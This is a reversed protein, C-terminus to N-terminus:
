DEKLIVDDYETELWLKHRAEQMSLFGFIEKIELDDNHDALGKYLQHSHQENKMAFVLIDQYTMDPSFSVERLYDSIHLDMIETIEIKDFGSSELRALAERHKEEEAALENFLKTARKSDAQRALVHYMGASEAEKEIAFEIVGEITSIKRQM